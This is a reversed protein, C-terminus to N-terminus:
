NKSTDKIIISLGRKINILTYLDTIKIYETGDPITTYLGRYIRNKKIIKLVNLHKDYFVIYPFWHNLKRGIINLQKGEKIRIFYPKLPKQLIVKENSDVFLAEAIKAFNTDIKYLWKDDKEKIIDVVKCEKRALESSLILPDIAYETNLRITWVLEGDANYKSSKTFYYYYGLAKLADNLIKLSKIADKNTHFEVVLNKPKDFRLNLLGNEKLVKLIPIIELEENIFYKEREKFIIKILNKHVQYEKSGILNKIKDDLIDAKVFAILLFLSLLLRM